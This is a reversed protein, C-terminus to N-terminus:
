EQERKGQAARGLALMLAGAALGPIALLMFIASAAIQLTVFGAALLPGVVQGARGAAMGWGVGTSRLLVPYVITALALVGSGAGGNCLGVIFMMLAMSAFSQSFFGLMAIAVAGSLFAIPLVRFAGFRDLLRGSSIVGVISGVNNLIAILVADSSSLGARGLLMPSWLAMVSLTLFNLFLIGWLPLTILSAGGAFLKRIPVKHHVALGTATGSHVANRFGKSEPLWAYMAVLLLLSIGSAILFTDRWGMSPILWYGALGAMVGGAPYAAWLMTVLSGRREATAYESAMALAIPAAGGLGIGTGLRALLVGTATTALLTSASLITFLAVAIMLSIRRGFRDALPGLLIAGLVMGVQGASFILGFEGPSISLESGISQASYAAIQYDFGDAFLVAACIALVKLRDARATADAFGAVSSAGELPENMRM